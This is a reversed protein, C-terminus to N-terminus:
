RTRCARPMTQSAQASALSSRVSWMRCWRWDPGILDVNWSGLDLIWSGLDLIWSGLDLIWSGLDLIRSALDLAIMAASRLGVAVAPASSIVQMM